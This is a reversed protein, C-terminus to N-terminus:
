ISVENKQCTRAIWFYYIGIKFYSMGTDVMLQALDADINDARIYAAQNVDEQGQDKIAQLLTKADEIDPRSWTLWRSWFGATCVGDIGWKEKRSTDVSDMKYMLKKLEEKTYSETSKLKPLNIAHHRRVYKYMRLVNKHITFDSAGYQGFKVTCTKGNDQEIDVKWKKIGDGAPKLSVIM